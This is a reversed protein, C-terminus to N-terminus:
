NGSNDQRDENYHQHDLTQLKKRHNILFYYQNDVLTAIQVVIMISLSYAMRLLRNVDSYDPDETIDLQLGDKLGRRLNEVRLVQTELDAVSDEANLLRQIHLPIPTHAPTAGSRLMERRLELVRALIERTMRTESTKIVGTCQSAMFKRQYRIDRSTTKDGAREGLRLTYHLTSLMIYLRYTKLPYFVEKRCYLRDFAKKTEYVATRWTT